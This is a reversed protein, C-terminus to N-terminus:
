IHILSLTVSLTEEPGITSKEDDSTHKNSIKIKSCSPQDANEDDSAHKNSIKTKSCSPQDANQDDTVESSVSNTGGGVLDTKGVSRVQTALSSSSSDSTTCPAANDVASTQPLSLSPPSSKVAATSLSPDTKAPKASKLTGHLLNSTIPKIGDM